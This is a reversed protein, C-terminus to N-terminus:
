CVKLSESFVDTKSWSNELIRRQKDYRPNKLVFVIVDSFTYLLRPYLQAVAFERSRKRPNDAWSLQRESIHRPLYRSPDLSNRADKRAQMERAKKLKAGVPEREGGELGECDAYLAPHDSVSSAPDSYLHVDESTSVNSGAAGVVPTPFSERGGESLDIILKILSSKGAGTQGVFSVLSPYRVGTNSSLLDPQYQSTAAMLSEYRGYDRFMPQDEAERFVGFWTTGMDKRHLRQRAEETMEPALVGRIKNAVHWRTREHPIAGFAKRNNRHPLQMKWCDSCYTCDCVNCYSRDLGTAECADCTREGDEISSADAQNADRLDNAVDQRSLPSHTARNYPRHDARQNMSQTRSPASVNIQPVPNPWELPTNAEIPSLTAPLQLIEERTVFLSDLFSTSFSNLPSM